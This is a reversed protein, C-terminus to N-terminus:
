ERKAGTSRLFYGAVALGCFVRLLFLSTDNTLFMMGPNYESLISVTIFFLALILSGHRVVAAAAKRLNMDCVGKASRLPMPCKEEATM